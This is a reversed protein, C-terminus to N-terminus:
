RFKDFTVRSGKNTDNWTSQVVLINILNFFLKEYSSFFINSWSITRFYFVDFATSITRITANTVIKFDIFFVTRM